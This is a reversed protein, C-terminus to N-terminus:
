ELRRRNKEYSQSISMYGHNFALYLSDSTLSGLLIHCIGKFSRKGFLDEDISYSLVALKKNSKIAISISKKM